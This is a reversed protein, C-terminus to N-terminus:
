THLIEQEKKDRLAKIKQASYEDMSKQIESKARFFDDERITEEEKMKQIKRLADEREQRLAIRAEETKQDLLKILSNRREETLSPLTLRIADKDAIPAIGLQSQLIAKQIPELANKDWPQIVITQPSPISITGLANIALMQGFYEVKIGDVLSPSARGTRLSTIEGKFHEATKDMKARMGKIVDQYM